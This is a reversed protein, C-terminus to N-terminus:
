IINNINVYLYFNLVYYYFYMLYINSFYINANFYHFIAMFIIDCYLVNLCFIKPNQKLIHGPCIPTETINVWIHKIDLLGM